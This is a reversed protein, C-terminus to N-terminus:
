SLTFWHPFLLCYFTFHLFTLQLYSYCHLTFHLTSLILLFFHISLDLLHFFLKKTWKWPWRTITILEDHPWIQECVGRRASYDTECSKWERWLFLERITSFATMNMLINVNQKDKGLIATLKGRVNTKTVRSWNWKNDLIRWCWEEIKDLLRM